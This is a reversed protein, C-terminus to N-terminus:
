FSIPGLNLHLLRISVSVKDHKEIRGYSKSYKNEIIEPHGLCPSLLM